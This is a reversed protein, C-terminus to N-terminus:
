EYEIYEIKAESEGVVVVSLVLGVVPLYIKGIDYLLSIIIILIVMIIYM